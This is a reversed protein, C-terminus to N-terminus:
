DGRLSECPDLRAALSAPLYGFFLGFACSVLLALVPAFWSGDVEISGHLAIRALVPIVLGLAIGGGAGTLSIVLAELLFQYLIHSRRAGVARRIGIEQTRETVSALMINMIGVGSSLMAILAIILMVYRLTSSIHDALKLIPDLNRVRYVAASSHRSALLDRLSRTAPIVDAATRAQAYLLWVSDDGTVYKIQDFPVLVSDRQIEDTGSSSARETFVGVIEFRLEGVHLIKGLPDEGPSIREGLSPTILCLRSHSQFDGEDFYRGSVIELNRIVQFRETVGVLNAPVVNGDVQLTVPTQRTGAIESIEPIEASAAELDALNIEDSLSSPRSADYEHNAFILNSGVAEIQQMVYQHATLSVTVVLIICASGVTVGFIALCVRLKNSRLSDFAAALTAQDLV